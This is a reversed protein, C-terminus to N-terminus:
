ITASRQQELSTLLSRKNVIEARIGDLEIRFKEKSTKFESRRDNIVSSDNFQHCIEENSENYMLAHCLSHEFVLGPRARRTVEM